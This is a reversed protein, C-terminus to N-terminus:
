FAQECVRLFVRAYACVCVCLNSLLIHVYMSKRSNACVGLKEFLVQHACVSRIQRNSLDAWVIHMRLVLVRNVATDITLMGKRRSENEDCFLPQVKFAIWKGSCLFLVCGSNTRRCQVSSCDLGGERVKYDWGGGAGICETYYVPFVPFNEFIRLFGVSKMVKRSACM